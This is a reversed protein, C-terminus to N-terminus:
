DIAQMLELLANAKATEDAIGSAARYAGEITKVDHMTAIAQKYIDFKEEPTKETKDLIPLLDRLISQKVEGLDEAPVVEQVPAETSANESVPAESAANSEPAVNAEVTGPVETTPVVNQAPMTDDVVPAVNEPMNGSAISQSLIEEASPVNNEVPVLPKVEPLANENKPMPPMPPVGFPAENNVADGGNAVNNIAQQLDNTQAFQDM